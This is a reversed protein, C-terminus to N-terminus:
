AAATCELVRHVSASDQRRGPIMPLSSPRLTAAPVMHVQVGPAPRVRWRSAVTALVVIAEAWAFGEGICQRNGAGFPVFAPRPINQARQPLWRDPDFVEADAYLNPDRHLSYPAFLISAGAPLSVEGLVVPENTRRTILWAPPFLRLTETIVRRTYVLGGIQEFTVPGEGLVEDVEAHLRTQLDPRQGLVHFVWSLLTSTTESGALLMTIAEDRVQVDGLGEGTVDDRADLLMSLMDGHDVGARRYDAIMRDVVDHLRRNAQDFRRNGNTPLKELLKTPAMARKAIGELFVPMSRLVEDVAQSGLETSFLTRGVIKLALQNLETDLAIQRGDYWSATMELTLDRMITAYGAIRSHHFAPQILRRHRLHEQGEATVLGNGLIPRMKEFQVGKSYKKIEGVLVRRILEPDNILYAPRPGIRIEVVDGLSRATALFSFPTRLLHLAHGLLPLARPLRTFPTSPMLCSHVIRRSRRMRFVGSPQFGVIGGVAVAVVEDTVPGCSM